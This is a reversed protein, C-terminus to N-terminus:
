LEYCGELFESSTSTGDSRTDETSVVQFFLFITENSLNGFDVFPRDLSRDTCACKRNQGTKRLRGITLDQIDIGVNCRTFESLLEFWHLNDEQVIFSAHEVTDRTLLQVNDVEILRAPSVMKWDNM